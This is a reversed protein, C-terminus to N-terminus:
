KLKNDKSAEVFIDFLTEFKERSKVLKAVRLIRIIASSFRVRVYIIGSMVAFIFLTSFTGIYYFQDISIRALGERLVIGSQGFLFIFLSGFIVGIFGWFYANRDSNYAVYRGVFHLIPLAVIFVIAGIGAIQNMNNDVQFPQLTMATSFIGITGIFVVFTRVAVYSVIEIFNMGEIAYQWKKEDDILLISIINLIAISVFPLLFLIVENGIEGPAGGTYSYYLWIFACGLCSQGVHGVVWRKM